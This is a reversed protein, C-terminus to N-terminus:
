AAFEKLARKDPMTTDHGGTATESRITKADEHRQKAEAEWALAAPEGYMAKRSLFAASRYKTMTERDILRAVIMSVAGRGYLWGEAVPKGELMARATIAEPRMDREALGTEANPNERKMEKRVNSCAAGMEHITPWFRSKMQFDLQELVRRVFPSYDNQPAFRLIAAILAEAERKAAEPKDRLDSPCSRREMWENFDRAIEANRFASM